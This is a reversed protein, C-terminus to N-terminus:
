LHWILDLYIKRDIIDEDDSVPFEYGAGMQLNSSFRYRGGFALTVVTGADTSGFNVLDFGEFDVPTRNGDKAVTIGNIEAIPFFNPALEYDIHASYHLVSSNRDDDLALNYGISGQLGVKHWARAGTLFFDVFGDGDGQLDIGATELTGIPMEYEVGATVITQNAPDDILAYKLGASINAWGSEDPLVGDFEIDAYGDKSAIFGLRDTLALRLELAYVDISGGGTIFDDPLEYGLYVARAETTIYPTENFLPNVLPAVYRTHGGEGFSGELDLNLGGAAAVSPLGILGALLPAVLSVHKSM